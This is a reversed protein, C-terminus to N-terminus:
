PYLSKLKARGDQVKFQWYVGRQKKNADESWAETEARLPRTSEFRRGTVCQRTMTSLENEAINLWSGHKPTQRFEIRRVLSRAKEAPFAEYFAGKTHTNLNDCVVIVKRASCYRTTLLREMEIAWDVKTRQDRVRVERWGSLPETFMFISATGCREYEYDVRRAHKRTAPKPKRIERHLQVTQDDMCLVPYESHYFTERTIGCQLM